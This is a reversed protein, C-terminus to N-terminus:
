CCTRMGLLGKRYTERHFCLTKCGCEQAIRGIWFLTMSNVAVIDPNESEIIVKVDDKAKCIAKINKFHARSLFRTNNGSFHMYSIVANSYIVRIKKEKCKEGLDGEVDFICLTTNIENKDIGDLIHLLSLGAGVSSNYHQFILLKKM